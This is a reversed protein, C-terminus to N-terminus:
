LKFIRSIEDSFKPKKGEIEPVYYGLIKKIEAPDANEIPILLEKPFGETKYLHLMHNEGPEWFIWFAHIASYLFFKDKWQLGRETFAITIQPSKQGHTITYMAGLMVSLIMLSISNQMIGLIAGMVVFGGMVLFWTKGREHDVCEPTVFSYLIKGTDAETLVHKPKKKIEFM